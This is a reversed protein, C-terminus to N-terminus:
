RSKTRAPACASLRRRAVPQVGDALPQRHQARLEGLIHQRSSCSKMSGSLSLWIAPRGCNAGRRRRPWPRPARLQIRGKGDGQRAGADLGEQLKGVVAGQALLQELGPDARPSLALAWLLVRMM